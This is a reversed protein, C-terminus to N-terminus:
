YFGYHHTGVPKGTDYDLHSWTRKIPPVEPQNMGRSITEEIWKMAKPHSAVGKTSMVVQPIRRLINKVEMQLTMSGLAYTVVLVRGHASLRTVEERLDDAAQERVLDAADNRITMCVIEKFPLTKRIENGIHKLQRVWMIDEVDEIPGHGLLVLSEQTPDRSLEKAYDRLIEVMLPHDDMAPSAVFRKVKSKIPPDTENTYIGLDKRLGVRYKIEEHHVSYSSPSLHILLIEEVGKEELRRVSKELTQEEDYDLFATELPYPSRVSAVLESVKQNWVPMPAGHSIVVVGMPAEKGSEIADTPNTHHLSLLAFIFFLGTKTMLRM